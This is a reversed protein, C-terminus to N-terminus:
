VDGSKVKKLLRGLKRKGPEKVGSVGDDSIWEEIEYGLKHAKEVIGIKQGETDQKDTSVRVYGYVM